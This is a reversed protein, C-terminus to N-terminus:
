EKELFRFRGSRYEVFCKDNIRDSHPHFIDWTVITGKGKKENVLVFTPKDVDCHWFQCMLKKIGDLSGSIAFLMRGNHTM